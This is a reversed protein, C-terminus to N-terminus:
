LLQKEIAFKKQARALYVKVSDKTVGLLDAIYSRSFGEGYAMMYCARERESLLDMAKDLQERQADGIASAYMDDASINMTQLLHPDVLKMRQYASRREIGRKNGPRRATDMWEIAYDVDSIMENIMKKCAQNGTKDAKRKANLLVQHTEGYAHKLDHISALWPTRNEDEILCKMIQDRTELFQQVLEKDPQKLIAEESEAGYLQCLALVATEAQERTPKKCPTLAFFNNLTAFAQFGEMQQNMM